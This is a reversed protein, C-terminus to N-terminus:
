GARGGKEVVGGGTAGTGATKSGKGVAGDGADGVLGGGVSGKEGGTVKLGLGGSTRGAGSRGFVGRVAGLVPLVAWRAFAPAGWVSVVIRLPLLAKVVAWATAIETVWRVGEQGVGWVRDVRRREVREGDEGLMEGQMGEDRLWGKKKFYRGFRELGDNVWKGESFWGPLYNTYHFTLALGVLPVVATLEHLILFASIHSIPASLIPTIYGRIFKP